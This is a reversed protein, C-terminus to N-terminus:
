TTKQRTVVLKATVKNGDPATAEATGKMKDPGDFAFVANWALGGDASVAFTLKEGDFVGGSIAFEPSDGTQITGTM